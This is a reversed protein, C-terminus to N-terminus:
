INHLNDLLQKLDQDHLNNFIVLNCGAQLSEKTIILNIAQQKTINLNSMIASIEEQTNSQKVFEQAAHMSLCDSIITGNFQLQKKLINKLWIESCGAPKSDIAPYIVHAPMVAPLTNPSIELNPDGMILLRFPELDYNFIEEKTRTDITTTLHTDSATSGHGPFHKGVAQMGAARQGQIFRAALTAVINPQNHFSRGLKGIVSSVYSGDPNKSALDLIPALNLDVGCSLLDNAIQYGCNYVKNLAQSPNIDYLEGFQQMSGPNPFSKNKFRWVNGGEHDVMILINPNITKIEATLQSIQPKNKFNRAFLIVGGVNNHTLITKEQLDLKSAKLSIIIPGLNSNLVNM